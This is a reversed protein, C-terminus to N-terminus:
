IISKPYAKREDTLGLLYDVSTNYFEALKVLHYIPISRVGTEYRSYQVQTIKLFNAIDKQFLDKDERIERLRDIKM